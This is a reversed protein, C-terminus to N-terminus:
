RFAAVAVHVREPVAAQLFEREAKSVRIQAGTELGGKWVERLFYTRGYKHFVLAGTARATGATAPIVLVNASNRWTDGRISLLGIAGPAITYAGAPMATNSVTFAFPVKATVLNQEPGAAQLGLTGCLAMWVFLRRTTRM